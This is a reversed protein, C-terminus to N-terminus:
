KGAPPLFAVGIRWVWEGRSTDARVVLPALERAQPYKERFRLPIEEVPFPTTWLLMAGRARVDAEDVGPSYRLDADQFLHPPDTTNLIVNGGLWFDGVVYVLPANTRRQWEGVISAAFAKGPFQTAWRSGGGVHFLQAALLALVSAFTVAAWGAFLRMLAQQDISPRWVTMLLLGLFAWFQLTWGSHVARMTILSGAVTLAFPGLAIALVYNRTFREPPALRQPKRWPTAGQLCALLLVVVGVESIVGLATGAAHRTFEIGGAISSREEVFAIPSFNNAALWISLPTILGVFVLIALYPGATRFCRRAFPDIFAFLIIAALLTVASFKAYFALAFSLGVWVWDVTRGAILARYVSWGVLAWIPLQLVNHNFEMTLANFVATGDLLVVAVLSEVPRLFECGFRWLVWFCLLVCLQGLLFYAAIHSGAILRVADDLWWALPPHKWYGLDFDRGQAIGEIVDLPLNRCVIAPILTWLTIHFLVFAGLAKRPQSEVTEILRRLGGTSPTLAFDTM